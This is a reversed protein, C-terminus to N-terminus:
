QKKKPTEFEYVTENKKLLGHKKRAVEELYTDDSQLRKIDESLEINKAELRANEQTLTVIEQQLKRYHFFGRGPAFLIWLLSFFVVVAGLIWLIRRDHRKDDEKNRIAM